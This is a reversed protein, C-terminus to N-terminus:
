FAFHYLTAKQQKCFEWCCVEPTLRHVTFVVLRVLDFGIKKRFFIPYIGPDSVSLFFFFLFSFRCLLVTVSFQTISDYERTIKHSCNEAEALYLHVM